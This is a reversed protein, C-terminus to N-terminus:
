PVQKQGRFYGQEWLWKLCLHGLLWLAFGLLSAWILHNPLSAMLEKLSYYGLGFGFYNFIAFAIALRNHQPETHLFKTTLWISIALALILLLPLWTTIYSKALAPNSYNEPHDKILEPEILISLGVWLVVFGWSCLLLFTSVAHEANTYQALITKM